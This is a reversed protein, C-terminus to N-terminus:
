DIRGILSRIHGEYVTLAERMEDLFGYRNYIAAVGSVQSRHDLIQETLHLPTGLKAMTTSFYRRTDHLVWNSVGSHLDLRAKAKSWGHFPM